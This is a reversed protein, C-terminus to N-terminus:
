AGQQRAQQEDRHDRRRLREPRYAKVDERALKALHDAIRQKTGYIDSSSTRDAVELLTAIDAENMMDVVDELLGATEELLIANEDPDRGGYRANALRKQQAQAARELKLRRNMKVGAWIAGIGGAGGLAIVWGYFILFKEASM